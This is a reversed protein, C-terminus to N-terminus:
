IVKKFDDLQKQADDIINQFLSIRTNIMFKIDDKDCLSKAWNTTHFKVYKNNDNIGLKDDGSHNQDYGITLSDDDLRNFTVGGHCWPYYKHMDWTDFDDKIGIQKAIKFLIHKSNLKVYGCYHDRVKVYYMDDVFSKCKKPITIKIKKM